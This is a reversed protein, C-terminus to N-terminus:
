LVIWFNVSQFSLRLPLKLHFGGDIDFKSIVVEEQSTFDLAMGAAFTENDTAKDLPFEARGTDELEYKQWAERKNPVQRFVATDLANSSSSILIGRDNIIVRECSTTLVLVSVWWKELYSFFFKNEDKNGEGFYM